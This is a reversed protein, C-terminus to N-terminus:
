QAAAEFVAEAILLPTDARRALLALADSPRCDLTIVDNGSAIVLEAFYTGDDVGVIRITQCRQGSAEITELLLDHTLPRPFPNHTLARHIAAAELPGINIALQREGRCESLFVTHRDTHEDVLLHSLRCSVWDM